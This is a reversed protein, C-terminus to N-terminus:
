RGSSGASIRGLQAAGDESLPLTLRSGDAPRYWGIVVDGTLDKQGQSLVPEFRQVIIDGPAWRSTPFSGDLPATDHQAIGTGNEDLVHLFQTLDNEIPALARWAVTIKQSPSRSTSTGGGDGVRWGLLEISEGFIFDGSSSGLWFQPALSASPASASAVLLLPETGPDDRNGQDGVLLPEFGTLESGIAERVADLEEPMLAIRAPRGGPLVYGQTLDVSTILADHTLYSLVSRERVLLSTVVPPGGDEALELLARARSATVAGFATNPEEANAYRLSYDRATWLVTQAVVLAALAWGIRAIYPSEARLRKSLFRAMAVLALAPPLCLAPLLGIMRSFNPAGSTLVAPLAMVGLWLLLFATASTAIQPQSREAGPAEVTSTAAGVGIDDVRSGRRVLPRIASRLLMLVGGVFALAALPDFVPRGKLGHYWSDGGRWVVARTTRWVSTAVRSLPSGGGVEADFVSVATAHGLVIDPHRLAHVGLPLAVLLAVSAVLALDILDTRAQGSIARRAVVWRGFLFGLPVLPWLRAAPHAYVSMGVLVGCAAMWAWRGTTEGRRLGTWLALAGSAEVLPLLVGRIAIRSFHVHWLMGALLVAAIAATWRPARVPLARVFAYTMPVTLAGLLASALRLAQVTPGLWAVLPAQVYSYLAERGDNGALYIPRAGAVIRLADMGNHAEDIHLGPPVSELGIARAVLAIITLGAVAIVEWRTWAPRELGGAVLQKERAEHDVAVNSPRTM